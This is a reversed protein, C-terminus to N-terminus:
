EPQDGGRCGLGAAAPCPPSRERSSFRFSNMADLLLVGIMWADAECSFCGPVSATVLRLIRHVEEELVLPFGSMVIYRGASM